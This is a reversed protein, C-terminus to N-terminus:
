SQNRRFFSKGKTVLMLETEILCHTESRRSRESMRNKFADKTFLLQQFQTHFLRCLQLMDYEIHDGRPTGNKIMMMWRSLSPSFILMKVFQRFNISKCRM